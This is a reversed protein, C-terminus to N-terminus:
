PLLISDSSEIQETHAQVILSVSASIICIWMCIGILALLFWQCDKLIRGRQM